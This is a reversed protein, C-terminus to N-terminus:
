MKHGRRARHNRNRSRKRRRALEAAAKIEKPDRIAEALAANTILGTRSGDVRRPHRSSITRSSRSRVTTKLNKKFSGDAAETTSVFDPSRKRTPFGFAGDGCKAKQWDKASMRRNGVARYCAEVVRFGHKRAWKRDEGTLCNYVMPRNTKPFDKSKSPCCKCQAM